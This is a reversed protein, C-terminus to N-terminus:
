VAAFAPCQIVNLSAHSLKPFAQHGITADHARFQIEHQYLHPMVIMCPHEHLPRQTPHYQVCLVGNKGVFLMHKKQRFYNRALKWVDAPFNYQDITEDLVLKKVALVHVDRNQALVLDKIGHETNAHEHLETDLDRLPM